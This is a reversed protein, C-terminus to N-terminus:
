SAPPTIKAEAKPVGTGDPGFYMGTENFWKEILGNLTGDEKMSTIAADMKDRLETDSKRIGVGLGGGLAVDEGVWALEGNSEAVVPELFDKDAFAAQAEGNRVAAVTEDPTGFELLTAGSEAVHAAQITATQAAVVAGEGVNTDASLAAYASAAPPLYNQTFDIEQKREDTISMGAMIADYNSSKLNPLISDWDNKVWVCELQARKCIENGVDIDYGDLDGKDNILNYPPYAGESAIRVPAALGRGATLALTAAALMLKKM